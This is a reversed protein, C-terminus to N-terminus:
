RLRAPPEHAAHAPADDFLLVVQPTGVPIFWDTGRAYFRIFDGEPFLGAIAPVVKYNRMLQYTEFSPSPRWEGLIFDHPPEPAPDGDHWGYLDSYEVQPHPFWAIVLGVRAGPAVDEPLVWPGTM